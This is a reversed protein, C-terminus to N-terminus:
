FVDCTIVALKKKENVILLNTCTSRVDDSDQRTGWGSRYLVCMPRTKRVLVGCRPLRIIASLKPALSPCVSRRSLGWSWQMCCLLPVTYFRLCVRAKPHGCRSTRTRTLGTLRQCFRHRLNMRDIKASRASHTSEYNRRYEDRRRRHCVAGRVASYHLLRDVNKSCGM